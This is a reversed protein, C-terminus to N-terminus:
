DIGLSRFVVDADDGRRESALYDRLSAAVDPRLEANADPDSLLGLKEDVVEEVLERLLARLQEVTLDSVRVIM